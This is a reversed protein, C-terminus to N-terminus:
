LLYVKIRKFIEKLLLKTIEKNILDSERQFKARKGWKESLWNEPINSM